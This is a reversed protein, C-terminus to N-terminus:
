FDQEEKSTCLFGSLRIELISCAVTGRLAFKNVQSPMM